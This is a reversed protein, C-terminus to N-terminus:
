FCIHSTEYNANDYLQATVNVVPLQAWGKKETLISSNYDVSIFLQNDTYVEVLDWSDDSVSLTLLHEEDVYAYSCPVVEANAFTAMLFMAIAVVSNRM